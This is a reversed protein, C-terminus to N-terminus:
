EPSCGRARHACCRAEGLDCRTMRALPDCASTARLRRRNQERKRRAGAEIGDAECRCNAKRALAIQAANESEVRACSARRADASSMRTSAPLMAGSSRAHPRSMMRARASRAGGIKSRKRRAGAEIGDAQCRCNAEPSTLERELALARKESEDLAQKLEMQKKQAADERERAAALDRAASMMRALPRLSM